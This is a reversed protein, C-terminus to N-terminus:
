ASLVPVNRQGAAVILESDCTALPQRLRLALELYAADYVTLAYRRALSLTDTWAHHDTEGDIGIPLQSLRDIMRDVYAEDCRGRRVASRLVNAVELRWLSPV